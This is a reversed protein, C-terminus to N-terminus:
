AAHPVAPLPADVDVSTLHSKSGAKECYVDFAGAQESPCITITVDGNVGAGRFGALMPTHFASQAAPRGRPAALPEAAPTTPQPVTAPAPSEAPAPVVRLPPRAPASPTAPARQAPGTTSPKETTGESRPPQEATTRSRLLTLATQAHIEITDDALALLRQAPQTGSPVALTLLVGAESAIELAPVFDSDAALIVARSVRGREALRALDLALLVDVGKQRLSPQLPMLQEFREVPIELAALAARLEDHWDPTILSLHGLRLQVQEIRRLAHFFRQQGEANPHGADFAADYYLIRRCARPAVHGDAGDRLWNRLAGVDVRHQRASVGAAKVLAHQLGRADVFAM